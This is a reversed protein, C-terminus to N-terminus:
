FDLVAGFYVTRQSFFDPHSKSYDFNYILTRVNKFDFVNGISGFAIITMGESVPFLKSVSLDILKYDPQRIMNETGVYIPEYVELDHRFVSGNIPEFHSGHRFQFISTVAWNAPFNYELNGKIFYNLDYQSPYSSEGKELNANIYTYSFRAKFRNTLYYSTFFEAGLVRREINANQSEKAFIAFDQEFNNKKYKGGISIQKSSILTGIPNEEQPLNYKHYLGSSFNFTFYESPILNINIQASLYDRQDKTPINKRLGGGFTIHDNLFYKGYVYLEPVNVSADSSSNLSPYGPGIAYEYEPFIGKFSMFRSNYTFGSKFGFRSGFYQYNVSVYFDRNDIDFNSSTYGYDARSLSFGQNFTLESNTFTKRYNLITFNRKKKQKFIGEFTPAEFLYHYSESLSYNFLKFKSTPSFRKYFHLGLDVTSFKKLKELARKNIGTLGFSPGYNSFATFSASKGVKRKLNIGVNALSLVVSGKNEQPISEDSQIAILGATTNGFELPPNGPYVQLNNVISTNFISFTGIGNLRSFRVADYIPVNDFFIGTEAPSSGRLSINASEDTTTAAAMSNVALLPDAKANPNMYIDLQKIKEITFEEAILKEASVVVEEMERSFPTLEIITQQILFAQIPIEREHYGIYSIVLSDHEYKQPIKLEFFGELNTNTGLSWNSKLFINAGILSIGDYKSLIKGSVKKFEQTYGFSCYLLSFGFLLILIKRTRLM